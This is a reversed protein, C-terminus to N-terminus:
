HVLVDQFEELGLVDAAFFGVATRKIFFGKLNVQRLFPLLVSERYQGGWRDPTVLFTHPGFRCPHEHLVTRFFRVEISQPRRHCLRQTWCRM